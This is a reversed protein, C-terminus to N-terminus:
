IHDIGKALFIQGLAIGGDGCPLKSGIYVKIDKEYLLDLLKETLVGNFFTGGSLIVHRKSTKECIKAIYEVLAIHFGLACEEKTYGQEIAEKISVFVERWDGQNKEEIFGMRIPAIRKARLAAYELEMPCRGEYDNTHCIDLYAAVADFLRGMSTNEIRNFGQKIAARTLEDTLGLGDIYSLYAKLTIDANRAAEDGRPLSVPLLSGIHRLTQKGDWIYFESGAISGDEFLGTGDWALCLAEEKIDYEAIVSAVHARHHYVDKPEFRSALEHSVYGSHADRVAHLPEVNLLGSARSLENIYASKVAESELDGMQPSIFVKNNIVLGFSAKLDAGFAALDEKYDVSFLDNYGRGRRNMVVKDKVIRVISDDMPTLIDRNHSLIATGDKGSIWKIMDDNDTILLDGSINASTMILPGLDKTLMLQVPNCPLMAGVYPSSGCVESSWHAEEKKKVLVIPRAVSNLERSELENVHCYKKAEAEDFFMVAFPKTERHKYERLRRIAEEDDVKACLHYGTIDKVALIGGQAVFEIASDMALRNDAIVDESGTISFTLVPGCDMCSITQAHRRRDGRKQYEAKCAPCMPFKKLVIRERDYPLSEIISYRPGCSVCSIFPHRYRRNSSDFLERKCKECTCLDPPILPMNREFAADSEIIRFGDITEDIDVTESELCELYGGDPVENKVTDIFKDVAEEDGQILITVIGSTNRVWGGLCLEEAKHAIFPRYGIGQVLGKVILKYAVLKKM